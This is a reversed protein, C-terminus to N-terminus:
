EDDWQAGQEIWKRITEIQAATLETGADYPPMREEAVEASIRLYLESEDPKGPVINRYGGLDAFASEKQDLRLDSERKKEDAGHCEYCYDALVPKVQTKYDVKEEANEEGRAPAPSLLAGGISAAVLLAVATAFLRRPTM